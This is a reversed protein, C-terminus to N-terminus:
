IKNLILQQSALALPLLMVPTSGVLDLFLKNTRILVTILEKTALATLVKMDLYLM